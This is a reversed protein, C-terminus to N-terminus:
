GSLSDPRWRLLRREVFGTLMNMLSAVVALVVLLAYIGDTQYLGAYQQIQQGLGDRSAILEATVVGLLSYIVGLRLSGFISPVAVPLLVKWFMAVRGLELVHALRLIDIDASHVGARAGALVVFVVISFALAIKAETTIGFAVVFVPALAIRPMANLADIYPSVLREVTPLLALGVGVVIGVASALVFAIVVAYMTAWLQGWFWDSVLAEQLFAFVARPSSTINQDLLGLTVVLQWGGVLLLGVAVRGLLLWSMAALRGRGAREEGESGPTEDASPVAARWETAVDTM